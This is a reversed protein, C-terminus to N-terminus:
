KIYFKSKEIKSRLRGALRFYSVDEWSDKKRYDLINSNVDDILSDLISVLKEKKPNEKSVNTKPIACESFRDDISTCFEIFKPNSINKLPTFLIKAGTSSKGNFLNTIFHDFISTEFIYLSTSYKRDQFYNKLEARLVGDDEITGFKSLLGEFLGSISRELEDRLPFIFTISSDNLDDLDFPITHLKDKDSGVYWGEIFKHNKILHRLSTSGNKRISVFRLRDSGIINM